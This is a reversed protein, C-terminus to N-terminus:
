MSTFSPQRCIYSILEFFSISLHSEHYPKAVAATAPDAAQPGRLILVKLDKWQFSDNERSFTRGCEERSGPVPQWCQLSLPPPKEVKLLSAEKARREPPM